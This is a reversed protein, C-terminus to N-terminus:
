GCERGIWSSGSQECMFGNGITSTVAESKAIGFAESGFPSKTYTQGVGLAIGASTRPLRKSGRQLALWM